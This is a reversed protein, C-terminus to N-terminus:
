AEGGDANQYDVLLALIKKQNEEVDRLRVPGMFEMDEKLMAAARKSMNRFIKEQVGADAGKLAIALKQSDCDRILKQVLSDDLLTIGEFALSEKCAKLGSGPFREDLAPFVGTFPEIGFTKFLSHLVTGDFSLEDEADAAKKIFLDVFAASLKEKEVEGSTGYEQLIALAQEKEGATASGLIQGRQMKRSQLIKTCQEKYLATFEEQTM